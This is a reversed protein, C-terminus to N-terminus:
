KNKELSTFGKLSQIIAQDKPGRQLDRSRSSAFTYIRLPRKLPSSSARWRGSKKRRTKRSPWTLINSLISLITISPLLSFWLIYEYMGLTKSHPPAILSQSMTFQLYNLLLQSMYIYPTFLSLKLGFVILM